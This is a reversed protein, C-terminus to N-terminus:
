KSELKPGANKPAIKEGAKKTSKKAGKKNQKVYELFVRIAMEFFEAFTLFSM